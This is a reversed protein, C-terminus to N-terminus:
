AMNNQRTEHVRMGMRDKGARTGIFELPSNLSGWVHIDKSAAASNQGGHFRHPLCGRKANLERVPKQLETGRRDFDLAPISQVNFGLYPYEFRDARNFLQVSHWGIKSRM